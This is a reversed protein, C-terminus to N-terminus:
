RGCKKGEAKSTANQFEAATMAKSRRKQVCCSEKAESRKYCNKQKKHLLM